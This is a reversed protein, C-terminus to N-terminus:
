GFTDLAFETAPQQPVPVEDVVLIIETQSIWPPASNPM